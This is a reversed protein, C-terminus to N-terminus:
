AAGKVDGRQVVKGVSTMAKFEDLHGRLRIINVRKVNCTM